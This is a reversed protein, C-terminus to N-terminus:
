GYRAGTAITLSARARIRFVGDFDLDADPTSPHVFGVVRGYHGNGQTTHLLDYVAQASDVSEVGLARRSDGYDQYFTIPWGRPTLGRFRLWHRHWDAGVDQPGDIWFDISQRPYTGVHTGTWAGSALRLPDGLSDAGPVQRILPRRPVLLGPCPRAAIQGYCVGAEIGGGGGPAFRTLPETGAFGLIDRFAPSLWTIGATVATGCWGIHGDDTAFWRFSRDDPDNIDNDLDELTPAGPDDIDGIEGRQRLSVRVDQCIGPEDPFRRVGIEGDITFTLRPPVAGAGSTVLGRRWESSGTLTGGDAAIVTAVVPLGWWANDASATLTADAAGTNTVVVRDASDLSVTLGHAAIPAALAPDSGFSHLFALIDAFKGEGDGWEPLEVPDGEEDRTFVAVGALNRLNVEAALAFRVDDAASRPM